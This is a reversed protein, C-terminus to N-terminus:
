PTEQLEAPGVAETWCPILVDGAVNAIYADDVLAGVVLVVLPRQSEKLVTLVGRAGGM